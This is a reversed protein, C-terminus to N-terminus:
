LRPFRQRYLLREKLRAKRLASDDAWFCFRDDNRAVAIIRGDGLVETVRLYDFISYYYYEGRTSPRINRADVAPSTSAVEQRYIVAAGIGFAPKSSSRQWFSAESILSIAAPLLVLLAFLSLVFM